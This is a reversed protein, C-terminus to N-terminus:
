NNSNGLELCALLVTKSSSYNSFKIKTCEQQIFEYSGKYGYDDYLFRSAVRTCLYVIKSESIQKIDDIFQAPVRGSGFGEIVIVDVKQMTEYIVEWNDAPSIKYIFANGSPTNKYQKVSNVQYYYHVGQGIIRGSMGSNIASFADYNIAETKEVYEGPYLCGNFCVQVGRNISASHKVAILADLINKMGEYGIHHKQRMSGTIIIPKDTKLTFTLYFATDEMTDTGHTIVIGQYENLISQIYDSLEKLYNLNIASSVISSYDLIDIDSMETPLKFNNITETKSTAITGGTTILAYKM